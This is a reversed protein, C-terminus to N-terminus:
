RLGANIEKLVENGPCLDKVGLANLPKNSTSLLQHLEVTEPNMYLLGTLIEHKIKANQIANIASLRDLPDWDQALKHLAISSGDHM